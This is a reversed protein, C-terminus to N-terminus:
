GGAGSTDYVPNVPAGPWVKLIGQVIVTNGQVLGSNVVYDTGDTRATTIRRQSVQNQADVVLVFTGAKDSQVATQPITIASQPAEESVVVTVFQGPSLFQDPNPFM